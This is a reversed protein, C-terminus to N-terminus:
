MTSRTRLRSTIEEVSNVMCRIRAKPKKGVKRIHGPGQSPRRKSNSRHNEIVSCRAQKQHGGLNSNEPSKFSKEALPHSTSDKTKALLHDRLKEAISKDTTTGKGRTNSLQTGSILKRIVEIHSNKAHTRKVSKGKSPTRSQSKRSAQKNALDLLKTTGQCSFYNKGTSSLNSVFNSDRQYAPLIGIDEQFTLQSPCNNGSNYGKKSSKKPKSGKSPRFSVKNKKILHFVKSHDISPPNAPSSQNLDLIGRGEFLSMKKGFVPDRDSEHANLENYKSQSSSPEKDTPRDRNPSRNNREKENLSSLHAKNHFYSPLMRHGDTELNSGGTFVAHDINIIDCQM